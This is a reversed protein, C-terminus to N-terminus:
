IFLQFNSASQAKAAGNAKAAGFGARTGASASRTITPSRKSTLLSDEAMKSSANRLAPTSTSAMLCDFRASLSLIDLCAWAMRFAAKPHESSQSLQVVLDMTQASTSGFSRRFRSFSAEPRERTQKM